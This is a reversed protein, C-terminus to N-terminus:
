APFAVRQCNPHALPHAWYDDLRRRSGNALDPDDHTVWGCAGGDSIRVMRVGYRRFANIQAFASARAVETRAIVRARGPSRVVEEIRALTVEDTAREVLAQQLIRQIRAGTEENVGRWIALRVPRPFVREAAAADLVPTPIRYGFLQASLLDVQRLIAQMAPRMRGDIALVARESVLVYPNFGAIPSGAVAAAIARHQELFARLLAVTARDMAAQQLRLIGLLFAWDRDSLGGREIREGPQTM